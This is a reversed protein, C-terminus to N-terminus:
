CLLDRGLLSLVSVHQCLLALALVISVEPVGDRHCLGESHHEAVDSVAEVVCALQQMVAKNVAPPMNARTILAQQNGSLFGAHNGLPLGLVGCLM